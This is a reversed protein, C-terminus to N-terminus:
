FPAGEEPNFPEFAPQEQEPEPEANEACWKDLAVLAGNSFSDNHEKKMFKLINIYKKEGSEPDNFERSPSKVWRKGNSMFVGCGYLEIGMKPIRFDAFGQLAGSEHKKYNICEFSM